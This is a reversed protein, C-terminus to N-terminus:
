RGGLPQCPSRTVPHGVVVGERRVVRDPDEPAGLRGNWRQHQSGARQGRQEVSGVQAMDPEAPDLEDLAHVDRHAIRRPVRDRSVVRSPLPLDPRISEADPELRTVSVVVDIEFPDAVDLARGISPDGVLHIAHAVAPECVRLDAHVDM